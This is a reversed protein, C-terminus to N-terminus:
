DVKHQLTRVNREQRLTAQKHDNIRSQTHLGASGGAKHEREGQRIRGGKADKHITVAMCSMKAPKYGQAAKQAEATIQTPRHQQTPEPGQTHRETEQKSEEGKRGEGGRRKTISLRHMTNEAAICPVKLRICPVKLCQGEKGV